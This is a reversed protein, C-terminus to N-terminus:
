VINEFRCILEEYDLDNLYRTTAYYLLAYKIYEKFITYKIDTDYSKLLAKLKKKSIKDNKFCWSVATVAVDFLFDGECAESLDYVGNLKNNKFKANDLFLDGHIIGNNKLKINISNFYKLLIPNNSRIILKKLYPKKFIKQNSSKLNKTTKHFLKLFLGIQEIHKLTPRKISKGGIQTYIVAQKNQIYLIEVVKPVALDKLINLITQENQIQKKTVSEFIKLVYIDDLLYVTDSVGDKTEKLNYQRYKKPLQKKKIATKIGM